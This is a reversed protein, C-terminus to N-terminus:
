FYQKTYLISHTVLQKREGRTSVEPGDMKEQNPGLVERAPWTAEQWSADFAINVFYTDVNALPDVPISISFKNDESLVFASRAVRFDEKPNVGYPRIEYAMITQKPLSADGKVTFKQSIPDYSFSTIQTRMISHAEPNYSLSQNTAFKYQTGL